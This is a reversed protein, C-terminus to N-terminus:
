TEPMSNCVQGIKIGVPRPRGHEVVVAGEAGLGLWTEERLMAGVARADKRRWLTALRRKQDSTYPKGGPPEIRRSQWKTGM